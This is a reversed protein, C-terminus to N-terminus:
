RRGKGRRKRKVCECIVCVSEREQRKSLRAMNIDMHARLIRSSITSFLICLRSKQTKNIWFHAKYRHCCAINANPFRYLPKFGAKLDASGMEKEGKTKMIKRSKNAIMKEFINNKTREGDRTETCVCPSSYALTIRTNLM